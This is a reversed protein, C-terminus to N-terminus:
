GWYIYHLPRLQYLYEPKSFIDLYACLAMITGPIQPLWDEKMHKLIKEDHIKPDLNEDWRGTAMNYSAPELRDRKSGGTLNEKFPNLMMMNYPYIGCSNTESFLNTVHNEQSRLYTEEVWDLTDDYRYWRSAEELPLFMMVEPIGFEIQHVFLHHTKYDKNKKNRARMLQSSLSLDFSIDRIPMRYVSHLIYAAKQPNNALWEPFGECKDWIKEHDNICPKFRPDIVKYEETKVDDLGYGIIKHVRIGM